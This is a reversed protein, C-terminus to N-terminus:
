VLINIIQGLPQNRGATNADSIRGVPAERSPGSFQAARQGAEDIEDLTSLQKSADPQRGRLRQDPAIVEQGSDGRKSVVDQSRQAIVNNSVSTRASPRASQQNAQLQAQLASKSTNIDVM